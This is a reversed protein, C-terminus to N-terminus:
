KFRQLRDDTTPHSSLYNAAGEGTEDGTIRQLINAYKYLEINNAVLYRYAYDDAEREFERSYKSNVLLTPLAVVLSSTSFPDGTITAILVAVASDQLVMRVSHRHVLHGLEHAIVSVVEDDDESLEVLEDTMIIIGSPLAFANAGIKGGHRFVLEYEEGGDIQKKIDEFRTSLQARRKEDLRTEGFAIKDLTELTGQGLSRDVDAPLNYAIESSMFPIGYALMGWSFIATFVVAFLVYIVRSELLHIISAASSAGHNKLYDDVLDNELIYCVSDNPLKLSRPTNGLRSSFSVEDLGDHYEVNIRM